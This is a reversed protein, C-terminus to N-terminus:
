KDERNMKMRRNSGTQSSSPKEYRRVPSVRSREGNEFESKERQKITEYGEKCSEIAVDKEQIRVEIKQIQAQEDETVETLFKEYQDVMYYLYQEYAVIDMGSDGGTVVSQLTKASEELNKDLKEMRYIRRRIDENMGEIEGNEQELVTVKLDGDEGEEGVEVDNDTVGEEIDKLREELEKNERKVVEMEGLVREFAKREEERLEGVREEEKQVEVVRGEAEEERRQWGTEEESDRDEWEKGVIKAYEERAGREEEGLRYLSEEYGRYVRRLEKEVKVEMERRWERKEEDRGRRADMAIPMQRPVPEDYMDDFPEKERRKM